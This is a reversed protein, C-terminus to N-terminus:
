RPPSQARVLLRLALFRRLALPRPSRQEPLLSRRPQPARVVAGARLLPLIAPPTRRDQELSLDPCFAEDFAVITVALRLWASFLAQGGRPPAVASMMRPSAPDRGNKCPPIKGAVKRVAGQGGDDIRGLM